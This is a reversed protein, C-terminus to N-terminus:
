NDGELHGWWHHGPGNYPSRLLTTKSSSYKRRFWSSELRGWYASLASVNSGGSAVTSSQSNCSVMGAAKEQEELSARAPVLADIAVPRLEENEKLDNGDKALDTPDGFPADKDLCLAKRSEPRTQQLLPQQQQWQHAQKGQHQQQLKQQGNSPQELLLARLEQRVEQRVVTAIDPLSQKLSSAAFSRLEDRLDQRTVPGYGMTLLKDAM